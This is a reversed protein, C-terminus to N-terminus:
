FNLTKSGRESLRVIDGILLNQPRADPAIGLNKLLAAVNEKKAGPSALLNNLVTKRPQGFLMRLTKYYRREQEAAKKKHNGDQEKLRSGIVELRVIASDVKPPPDFNRKPVIAIIEPDAWFQVSAALRNMHPPKAVVREAVEKQVMLVVRRPKHELEGITRLLHGTIYYPINGVISYTKPKLNYTISPILKLADGTKIEFNRFGLVELRDGLVGDKEIAIVKGGVKNVVKVLPATLEGHGPGIEIITEGREPDLVDAIKKIVARNKLFHQGLRKM